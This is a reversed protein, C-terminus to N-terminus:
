EREILKKLHIFIFIEKQIGFLREGFSAWLFYLISICFLLMCREREPRYIVFLVGDQRYSENRDTNWLNWAELLNWILNMTSFDIISSIKNPNIKLILKMLCRKSDMKLAKKSNLTNEKSHISNQSISKLSSVLISLNWSKIRL